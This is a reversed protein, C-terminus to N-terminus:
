NRGSYWLIITYAQVVVAIRYAFEFFNSIFHFTTGSVVITDGPKLVPNQNQDANKIFKKVDIVFVSDSAAMTSNRVIKIEKIKAEERPGGAYSLLSVLDTDYPVMYQGPKIVFGWVNVPMLVEDQAGLVYQAAGSQIQGGSTQSFSNCIACFLLLPIFAIKKMTTSRSNRLSQHL